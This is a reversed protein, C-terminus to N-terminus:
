LSSYGLEYTVVLLYIQSSLKIETASFHTEKLYRMKMHVNPKFEDIISVLCIQIGFDLDVSHFCEANRPSQQNMWSDTVTVSEKRDWM